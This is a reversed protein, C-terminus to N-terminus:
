EEAGFLISVFLLYSFLGAAVGYVESHVSFGIALSGFVISIFRM